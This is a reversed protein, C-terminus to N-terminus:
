SWRTEPCRAKSTFRGPPRMAGAHCSIGGADVTWTRVTDDPFIRLAPPNAASYYSYFVKPEFEWTKSGGPPPQPERTLKWVVKAPEGAGRGGGGRQVSFTGEGSLDPGGITGSLAGASRGDAQSLFISLKSGSIVGEIKLVGWSGSLKGGDARLAVRAYQSEGFGTSIESIWNGSIDAACLSLPVALILVARWSTKM